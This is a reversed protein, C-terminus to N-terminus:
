GKQWIVANGKSLEQIFSQVQYNMDGWVNKGDTILTAATLAGCDEPKIAKYGHNHLFHRVFRLEANETQPNHLRRFIQKEKQTTVQMKLNGNSLINIKM